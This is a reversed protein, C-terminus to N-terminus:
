RHVFWWIVLAVSGLALAWRLWRGTGGEPKEPAQVRGERQDLVRILARVNRAHARNAVDAIDGIVPVLGILADVVLNLVMGAIKGSGVQLRHAELLIGAGLFFGAVDGIGPILGIIADLGIRIGTGPIRFMGDLLAEYRELRQRSAQLDQSSMKRDPM